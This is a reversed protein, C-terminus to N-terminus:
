ELHIWGVFAHFWQGTFQHLICCLKKQWQWSLFNFPFWVDNSFTALLNILLSVSWATNQFVLLMILKLESFVGVWKSGKFLAGKYLCQPETSATRGMSPTSWPVLLPHPTLTVGWGSNLAEVRSLKHESVVGVSRSDGSWEVPNGVTRRSM